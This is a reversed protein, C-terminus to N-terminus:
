RWFLEPRRKLANFSQLTMVVGESVSALSRARGPARWLGHLFRHDETIPAVLYFVDRIHSTFLFYILGIDVIKVPIEYDFCLRLESWIKEELTKDESM